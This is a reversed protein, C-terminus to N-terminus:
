EAPRLVVRGLSADLGAGPEAVGAANTIEVWARGAPLERTGAYLLQGDHAASPQTELLLRPPRPSGARVAAETALSRVEIDLPTSTDVGIWVQWRGGTELDFPAIATEGRGIATPTPLSITDATPKPRSSARGVPDAGLLSEPPAEYLEYFRGREVLEWPEPPPALLPSVRQLILPYGALDPARLRSVDIPGDAATAFTGDKLPIRNRRLEAPGEPATDRLLHRTAYPEFDTILLPGRGAYEEGIRELESLREYPALRIERYTFVNSAVVGTAVCAAAVAAVRRWRSFRLSGAGALALALVGPSAIALSKAALWPSAVAAIVVAILGAGAGWAAVPGLAVPNRIAGRCGVLWLGAAVAILAWTLTPLDPDFRFDEGLWVGLVQFPSLAGALNGIVDSDVLNFAGRPILHGGAVAAAAVALAGLAALGFAARRVRSSSAAFLMSAAPLLWVSGGLSLASLLGAAIAGAPLLARLGPPRPLAAVAAVSAAILAAATLEKIGSWFAFAFLLAPQAAVFAAALRLGTRPIAGRLLFEACLALLAALLAMYPQFTWAPDTGALRAGAAFPLMSGAPYGRDLTYDLTAEYSSPPLRDVEDGSEIRGDGIALWTATDDLTVYGAFTPQGSVVIPLAYVGFTLAALLALAVAVARGGAPRRRVALLVLGPISLAAVIAPAAEHLPTRTLGDLLLIGAALGSALLVAVPLRRGSASELLGGLGAAAATMLLPFLIWANLV